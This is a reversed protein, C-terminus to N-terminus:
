PSVQPSSSTPKFRKLLETLQASGDEHIKLSKELYAKLAPDRVAPLLAQLLSIRYEYDTYMQILASRERNTQNLVTLVKAQRDEMIKEARALTDTGRHYTLDVHHEQAWAHLQVQLERQQTNMKSFFDKFPEDVGMFPVSLLLVLHQKQAHANSLEALLDRLEAPPLDAWPSATGDAPPRATHCAPLLLLLYMATATPLTMRKDM